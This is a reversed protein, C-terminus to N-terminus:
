RCFFNIQHMLGPVDQRPAYNTHDYQLPHFHVSYYEHNCLLCDESITKQYHYDRSYEMTIGIGVSPPHFHRWVTFM